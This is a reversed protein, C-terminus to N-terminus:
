WGTRNQKPNKATSELLRQKRFGAGGGQAWLEALQARLM